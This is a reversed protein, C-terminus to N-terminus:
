ASVGLEALQQEREAIQDAIIAADSGVRASHFLPLGPAYIRQSPAVLDTWFSRDKPQSARRRAILFWVIVGIIVALVVFFGSMFPDHRVAKALAFVILAVFSSIWIMFFIRVIRGWREYTTLRTRLIDLEHRLQAIDAERDM